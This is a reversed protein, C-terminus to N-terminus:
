ERQGSWNRLGSLRSQVAKWTIKESSDAMQQLAAIEEDRYSKYAVVRYFMSDRFQAVFHHTYITDATFSLFYFFQEDEYPTENYLVIYGDPTIPTGYITETVPLWSIVADPGSIVVDVGQVAAPPVYEGTGELKVALSPANAANSHIYISDTVTANFMPTFVVGLQSSGQVPIELPFSVGSLSFQTDSLFFSVSDIILTGTGPNTLQIYQPASVDGLYVTSFNITNGSTLSILPVNPLPLITFCADSVMNMYSYTTDSLRVLCFESPTDPITWQYANQNAPLNSAIRSWTLGSDMSYDINLTTLGSGEWYITQVSQPLYQEGGYPSWLVLSKNTIVFPQEMKAVIVGYPSNIARLWVSNDLNATVSWIFSGDTVPTAVSNIWTWNENDTSYEWWLTWNPDVQINDWKITNPAYRTVFSGGAPKIIKIPFRVEFPGVVDNISPKDYCSVRYYCNSSEIGSINLNLDFTGGEGFGSASYQFVWTEGGDTSYEITVTDVGISYIQTELSSSFGYYILDNAQPSLIQIKGIKFTYDSIDRISPNADSRVRALCRYGPLDGLNFALSDANVGTAIQQWTLGEDYSLDLSVAAVNHRTWKFVVDENVGFQLSQGNPYTMLVRPLAPNYQVTFVADSDDYFSPSQFIGLRIKCQTSNVAPVTYYYPNVLGYYSSEISAWNSGGDYSIQLNVNLDTEEWRILETTGGTWIEGGNPYILQPLNVDYSISIDDIYIEQEYYSLMFALHRNNGYLYSFDVLCQSWGDHIYRDCLYQFSAPDDYDNVTGIILNGNGQERRCYFSLKLATMDISEAIKPGILVCDLASSVLNSMEVCNPSSHSFPAYEGHATRIYAGEGEEVWGVWDLPLDPAQVSDFNQTYPLSYVTLDSCEGSVPISHVTRGTNDTINVTASHTGYSDPIYQIAFPLTQGAPLTIPLAPFNQVTFCTSGSVNVSEVVLSASGINTTWVDQRYVGEIRSAGFDVNVPYTSLAPADSLPELVFTINPMDSYFYSVEPLDAPDLIDTDSLDYWARDENLYGGIFHNNGYYTQADWPRFVLMVLNGGTYAFPFHMPVSLTGTGSPINLNGDFALSLSTSPILGEALSSQDTVGLWIKIPKNYIGQTFNYYLKIQSISGSTGIESSLFLCEYLNTNYGYFQLPYQINNSGFEISVATTGYEQIEIDLAQCEDNASNEDGTMVVLGYISSAGAASPTWYFTYEQIQKPAISIGPLSLLEVGGEQMLKVTYNSQTNYGDNKITVTYEYEIGATPYSSGTLSQCALDDFFVQDAFYLGIRPYMGMITGSPPNYPDFIESYSYSKLARNTRGTTAYFLNGTSYTEIDLPRLVMVVLNSGPYFFPVTLDIKVDNGGSPYDVIGDFVLTLNNAPIYGGSLDALSSTGMWIQTPKDMINSNFSNYYELSTIYKNALGIEEPYYLCEYLSTNRYMDVPIRSHESNYPDGISTMNTGAPEGNVLIRPCQDNSPIQDGPSIVKAYLYTNYFDAPTWPITFSLTQAENIATGTVSGIEVDGTKMLKVTYGNQTATGNNRVKVTYIWTSEACPTRNGTVSLCTLDNAIGQGTFYFTTQPFDGSINFTNPPNAPDLVDSSSGAFLARTSGITQGFFRDSLSYHSTDMVREVLLVLNGGSYAFPSTFPVNITNLGVPLTLNGSFVQTLSTSPIWGGSLDTNATIGLWINVPKDPIISQFDNYFALGTIDGSVIGLENQYYLCEFLSNEYYMYLPSSDSKDGFGITFESADLTACFSVLVIALVIAYKLRYIM